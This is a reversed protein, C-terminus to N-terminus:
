QLASEGLGMEDALIGNLNNNYLSVMWELGAMQYHKLEGGELLRPQHSVQETVSHARKYYQEMSTAVDTSTDPVAAAEEGEVAAVASEDVIAPVPDAAAVTQQQTFVLKSLEKLYSETQELLYTLRENRTRQLLAAYANMDSARLAALRSREEKEEGKEREQERDTLRGELARSLRALMGKKAAHYATFKHSHEVVANLFSKRHAALTPSSILPSSLLRQAMNDIYFNNDVLNHCPHLLPVTAYYPKTSPSTMDNFPLCTIRSLRSLIPPAGPPQSSGAPTAVLPPPVGCAAFVDTVAAM